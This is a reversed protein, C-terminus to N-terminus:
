EMMAEVDLSSKSAQFLEDVWYCSNVLTQHEHHAAQANDRVGCANIIDELIYRANQLFAADDRQIENAPHLLFNMKELYGAMAQLSLFGRELHKKELNKLENRVYRFGIEINKTLGRMQALKGNIMCAKAATTIEEDSFREIYRGFVSRQKKYYTKYVQLESRQELSKLFEDDKHQEVVLNQYRALLEQSSTLVTLLADQIKNRLRTSTTHTAIFYRFEDLLLILKQTLEPINSHDTVSSKLSSIKNYLINEQKLRKRFLQYIWDPWLPHHEYSKIIFLSIDCLSLFNQQKNNQM